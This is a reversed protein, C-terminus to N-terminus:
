DGRGVCVYLCYIEDVGAKKLLFAVYDITTGTTYIDDVILVRRLRVDSKVIKFASKLNAKREAGELGKMPATDRMRTILNSEVEIGTIKSLAKAFVDAQNYGRLKQKDRYMPVPIIADVRKKLLWEGWIDVADKAFFKSYCRRNGYKFRYMGAKLSNTYVYVGRGENFFHRTVGCDRCYEDTDDTLVKGCKKCVPESARVIKPECTRCFGYESSESDLVKDCCICRRPFLVEKIRKYNM